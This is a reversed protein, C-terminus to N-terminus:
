EAKEFHALRIQRAAWQVVVLAAAVVLEFGSNHLAQLGLAFRHWYAISDTQQWDTALNMAFTIALIEICFFVISGFAQLMTGFFKLM